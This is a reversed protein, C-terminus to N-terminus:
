PRGGEKAPRLPLELRFVAGGGSRNFATLNGEHALVIGRAVALGLGAGGGSATHGRYFKDFVAEEEGEGLGAGRDMVDM